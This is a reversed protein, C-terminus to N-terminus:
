KKMPRCLQGRAFGAGHLVKAISMLPKVETVEIQGLSTEEHGIVQGSRDRVPSDQRIVEFQQGVKAESDGVDLYIKDRFAAAIRPETRLRALTLVLEDVADNIAEMGNVGLGMTTAVVTGTHVEYVSLYCSIAFTRRAAERLRRERLERFIT